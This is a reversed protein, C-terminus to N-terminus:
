VERPKTREMTADRSALRRHATSQDNEAESEDRALDASNTPVIATKPYRVKASGAAFMTTKEKFNILNILTATYVM